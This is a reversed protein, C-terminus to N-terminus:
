SLYAVCLKNNNIPPKKEKASKLRGRGRGMGGKTNEQWQQASRVRLLCLGCLLRLKQRVANLGAQVFVRLVCQRFRKCFSATFHFEARVLRRRKFIAHVDEKCRGKESPKQLNNIGRGLGGVGHIKRSFVQRRTDVEDKQKVEMTAGWCSEEILQATAGLRQVPLM